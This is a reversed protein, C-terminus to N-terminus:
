PCHVQRCWRRKCRLGNPHPNGQCVSFGDCIGLMYAGCDSVNGGPIDGLYYQCCTDDNAQCTTETLSVECYDCESGALCLFKVKTECRLCDETDCIHDSQIPSWAAIFPLSPDYSQAECGGGVVRAALFVTAGSAALCSLGFTLMRLRM